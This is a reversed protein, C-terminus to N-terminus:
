FHPEQHPYSSKLVRKGGRMESNEMVKRTASSDTERYQGSAFAKPSVGTTVRHTGSQEIMAKSEAASKAGMPTVSGSWGGDKQEVVHTFQQPQLNPM